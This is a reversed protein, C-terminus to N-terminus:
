SFRSFKGSKIKEDKEWILVVAPSGQTLLVVDGRRLKGGDAQTPTACAM